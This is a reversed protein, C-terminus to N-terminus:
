GFCFVAMRKEDEEPSKRRARAPKEAANFMYIDKECKQRMGDCGEGIFLGGATKKRREEM